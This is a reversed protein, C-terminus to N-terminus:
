AEYLMKGERFARKVFPREKIAEFEQPNYVLIDLSGFLLVKRVRPDNELRM